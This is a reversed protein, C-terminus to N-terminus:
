QQRTLVIGEMDWTDGTLVGFYTGHVGYISGDAFSFARISEGDSESGDEYKYRCVFLGDVFSEESIELTFAGNEDAGAWVGNLACRVKDPELAYIRGQWGSEKDYELYVVTEKSVADLADTKMSITVLVELKTQGDLRIDESIVSVDTIELAEDSLDLENGLVFFRFTNAKLIKSFFESDMEVQYNEPYEVKISDEDLQVGLVSWGSYDYYRCNVVEEFTYTAFDSECTARFRVNDRLEDMNADHSLIQIDTFKNSYYYDGGLSVYLEGDSLMKLLTDDEMKDITYTKEFDSVTIDSIYWSGTMPNAVCKALATFDYKRIGAVTTASFTVLDCYESEKLEHKTIKISDSFDGASVYLDDLYLGGYTNIQKEAESDTVNSKLAESILKVEEELKSDSIKWTKSKTLKFNMNYKKESVMGNATTTLTCEVEAEDKEESLSADEIKIKYEVGEAPHEQMAGIRKLVKRVDKETPDEVGCGTLIVLLFMMLILLLFSKKVKM